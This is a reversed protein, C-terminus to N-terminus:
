FDKADYVVDLKCILGCIDNCYVLSGNHAFYPIFVKDRNRYWLFSTGPSLLNKSQLRSGLIEACDKPLDLDRV